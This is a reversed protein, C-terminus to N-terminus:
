VKNRAEVEPEVARHAAGPSNLRMFGEAKV